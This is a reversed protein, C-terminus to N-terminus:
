DLVKKLNKYCNDFVELFLDIEKKTTLHSLSIRISSKAKDIDKTLSYVIKSYDDNDSCATKTSVYVDYKELAHMFVESKIGIISINLIHPICFDNSNIFVKDYKKLEEKLYKNLNFVYEYKEDIDNYALRMAKSISVILPHSPTGSRYETTSKGGHILPELLINEKKILCGVGKIGYFKHASFSALDINTLDVKEKGIMQTLDVHYFCKPYNKLINGVEEIPQRLGIESNVANISVLITDDRLLKKLHELDILGFENHNIYSIEFGLSELYSIPGSVSSHEFNTTIIHKGRNQYKLCIGKIALNNSESAGSTYIIENNKVNLIDAIQKTASNVLKNTNNELTHLSNSNGIFTLNAKNFSDLVEKNVPTTASYDLYVM